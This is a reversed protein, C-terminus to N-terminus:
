AIQMVLDEEQAAMAPVRVPVYEFLFNLARLADTYNRPDFFTIFDEPTHFCDSIEAKDWVAGEDSRTVALLIPVDLSQQVHDLMRHAKLFSQPDDAPIMVMVADAGKEAMLWSLNSMDFDETNRCPLSRLEVELEQTLFAGYEVCDIDNSEVLEGSGQYDIEILPTMSLTELLTTKGSNSPGVVLINAKQKDSTM